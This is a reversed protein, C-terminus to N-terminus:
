KTQATWGGDVVLDTATIFSAEDSLLFATAAAIDDPLGLRRLPTRAEMDARRETSREYLYDIMPTLISGPCVTNCRIGEPGLQLAISRSLSVVAAKSAQYADLPSDMGRTGAISAVNVISRGRGRRLHPLAAMTVRRMGHLNVGLTTEWVPDDIEFVSGDKDFLAVGAANVLYDLGDAATPAFLEDPDANKLLDHPIYDVDDTFEDISDKIDTAIVRVGQTALRRVIAQGIGGAAGTVLATPTM